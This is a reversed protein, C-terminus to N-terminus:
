EARVWIEVANGKALASTLMRQSTPNHDEQVLEIVRPLQNKAALETLVNPSSFLRGLLEGRTTSTPIGRISSLLSELHGTRVLEATAQTNALIHRLSNARAVQELANIHQLVQDVTENKL